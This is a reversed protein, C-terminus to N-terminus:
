PSGVQHRCSVGTKRVFVAATSAPEGAQYLGGPQLNSTCAGGADVECCMDIVSRAGSLQLASADLGAVRSYETCASEPQLHLLGHSPASSGLKGTCVVGHM